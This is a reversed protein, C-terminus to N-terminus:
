DNDEERDYKFYPDKGNDIESDPQWREPHERNFKLMRQKLKKLNGHVWQVSFKCVDYQFQDRYKPPVKPYLEQLHKSINRYSVNESHLQWLKQHIKSTFHWHALFNRCSQFYNFTKKIDKSTKNRLYQLDSRKLYRSHAGYGRKYCHFEINDFGDKELIKYWKNRLENFEKTQYFKKSTM